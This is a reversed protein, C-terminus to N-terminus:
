IGNGMGNNLGKKCRDGMIEGRENPRKAVCNRRKETHENVFDVNKASKENKWKRVVMLM